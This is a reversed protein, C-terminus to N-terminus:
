REDRLNARNSRYPQYDRGWDVGVVELRLGAGDVEVVVYHYPNLGREL